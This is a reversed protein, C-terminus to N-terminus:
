SGIEKASRKKQAVLAMLRRDRWVQREQLKDAPVKKRREREITDIVPGNWDVRRQMEKFLREYISQYREVYDRAGGTAFASM